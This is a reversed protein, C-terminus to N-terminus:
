LLDVINLYTLYAVAFAVATMVVNSLWGNVHEGMLSKKNTLWVLVAVMIPLSAAMLASSLLVLFLPKWDTALVYLPSLCFWLLAIRYTKRMRLSRAEDTLDHQPFLANCWLDACLLSYGTNAGLFTTFVAAWLGLGLVIRGSEGLVAAFMPALDEVEEIKGELPYLAGAAACQMLAAALFLGLATLFLDSRQKELHEVRSWGKEYVFTGYKLNSLSGSGAGVLALLVLVFGYGGGGDPVAPVLAGRLVEGLDPKSLVAAVFLTGGLLAILPKGIREVMRYGGWYMACVGATWLAISWVVASSPSPLPVLLDASSGILLVQYLNSLHRKILIVGLITWLAWRGARAYGTMITEGTVVVYRASAELFVYRAAVILAVTWLLAYGYQGGATANSVLDQPGVAALAFVMGPGFAWSRRKKLPRASAESPGKPTETM